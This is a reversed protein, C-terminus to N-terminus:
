AVSIPRAPMVKARSSGATRLHHREGLHVVPRRPRDHLLEAHHEHALEAPGPEDLAVGLHLIAGRERQVDGAHQVWAVVLGSGAAPL